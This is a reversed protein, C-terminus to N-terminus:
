FPGKDPKSLLDRISNSVFTLGIITVPINASQIVHLNNKIQNSDAGAAWGWVLKFCVANQGCPFHWMLCIGTQCFVPQCGASQNQARWVYERGMTCGQGPCIEGWHSKGTLWKTFMCACPGQKLAARGENLFSKRWCRCYSHCHLFRCTNALWFSVTEFDDGRKQCFSSSCVPTLWHAPSQNLEKLDIMWERKDTSPVRCFRPIAKNDIQM